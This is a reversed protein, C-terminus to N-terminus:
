IGASISCCCVTISFVIGPKLQHVIKVRSYLTHRWGNVTHNDLTKNIQTCSREKYNFPLYALTFFPLQRRVTYLTQHVLSGTVSEWQYINDIWVFMSPSLHSSQLNRFFKLFILPNSERATNHSLIFYIYVITSLAQIAQESFIFFDPILYRFTVSNTSWLSFGLVIKSRLLFCTLKKM